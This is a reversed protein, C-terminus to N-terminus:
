KQTVLRFDDTRFPALPLGAANFLNVEAPDIWNSWLYRVAVPEKVEPSSVILKGDNLEASAPVFTQDAGALTFGGITEGRQALGGTNKLSVIAKGDSFEVSDFSPGAYQISEGYVFGRAFLALREGVPRKNGPHIDKEDGLEPIPILGVNPVGDAVAAQSDRVVAWVPHKAHGCGFGPLQVVLFPLTADQFDRRWNAILTELVLRYDYARWMNTEGQYWLVGRVTYPLLPAIMTSYLGGARQSWWPGKPEEPKVTSKKHVFAKWEERYQLYAEKYDDFSSFKARYEQDISDAYDRFPRCDAAFEPDMWAEGPTGGRASMILGVPVDKFHEKLARGFYWTVASFSTSSEKTCEQWGKIPLNADLENVIEPMAFLRLGPIEAGGSALLEAAGDTNWLAWRMNSQGGAFWVEGVLVDAFSVQFEFSSVQLKRPESSAPMPDLTVQWRGSESAVAEKKQGAFEVTVTEGPAATGLVVVPKDRQLVMNDTFLPGTKLEAFAGLSCLYIACLLRGSQRRGAAFGGNASVPRFAREALRAVAAASLKKLENM